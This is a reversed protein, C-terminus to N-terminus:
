GLMERLKNYALEASTFHVNTIPTGKHDKIVYNVEEMGQAIMATLMYKTDSFYNHTALIDRAKGTEFSSTPHSKTELTDLRQFGQNTVTTDPM